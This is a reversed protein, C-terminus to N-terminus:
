WTTAIKFSMEGKQWCTGGMGRVGRGDTSSWPKWDDDSMVLVGGKCLGKLKGRFAISKGGFADKRPMESCHGPEFEEAVSFGSDGWKDMRANLLYQSVSVHKTGCGKVKRGALKTLADKCRHEVEQLSLKGQSTTLQHKDFDYYSENSRSGAKISELNALNRLCAAAGKQGDVLDKAELNKKGVV